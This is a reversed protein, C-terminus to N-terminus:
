DIALRMLPKSAFMIYAIGKGIHTEKDRIVRVNLIGDGAGDLVQGAQGKNGTKLGSVMHKRLEEENVSFPLNGIFVTTNTDNEIQSRAGCEAVDAGEITKSDM